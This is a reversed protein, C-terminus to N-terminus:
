VEKFLSVPPISGLTMVSTSNIHIKTEEPSLSSDTIYLCRIIAQSLLSDSNYLYLKYSNQGRQSWAFQGCPTTQTIATSKRHIKTEKPGLSIDIIYLHRWLNRLPEVTFIHNQVPKAKISARFPFMVKIIYEASMVFNIECEKISRQFSRVVVVVKFLIDCIYNCTM